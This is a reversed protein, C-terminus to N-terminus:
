QPTGLSFPLGAPSAPKHPVFPGGNPPNRVLSQKKPWEDHSVIDIKM